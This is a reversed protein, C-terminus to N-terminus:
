PPDNAPGDAVAHLLIQGQPGQVHCDRDSPRWRAANMVGIAARLVACVVILLQQALVAELHRHASFAITVISANHAM